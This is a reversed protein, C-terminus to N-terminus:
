HLITAINRKETRGTLEALVVLGVDRKRKVTVVVMLINEKDTNLFNDVLTSCEIPVHGVLTSDEEQKHLIAVLKHFSHFM